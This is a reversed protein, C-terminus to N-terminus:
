AGTQAMLAYGDLEGQANKCVFVDWTIEQYIGSPLRVELKVQCSSKGAAQQLADQFTRKSIDEHRILEAFLDRDVLQEASREMWRLLPENVYTILFDPTVKLAPVQVEDLTRSFMRAADGLMKDAQRLEIRLSLLRAMLGLLEETGPAFRSRATKAVFCLAGEVQGDVLLPAAVLSNFEKERHLCRTCSLGTLDPLLVTSGQVVDQLCEEVAFEMHREVNFSNPTTYLVTSTLRNRHPEFRLVVGLDAEFMRQGLQLMRDVQETMSLGAQQTLNYLEHLHQDYVRKDSADKVWVIAEGREELPAVTADYYHAQGQEPWEFEFHSSVRVAMCEKITFMARAAADAPWFDAPMKGLFMHQAQAQDVGPLNSSVELVKGKDDVKLYLGPLTQRLCVLEQAEKSLKDGGGATAHVDSIVALVAQESPIELACLVVQAECCIGEKGQLPLNFIAKGHRAVERQAKMLTLEVSPYDSSPEGFLDKFEMQSLEEYSYHTKKALWSNLQDAKGLQKNVFSVKLVGGETAAHLASLQASREELIKMIQLHFALSRLVFLYNDDEERVAMLRVKCTELGSGLYITYERNSLKGEKKLLAFDQNILPKEDQVFLRQIKQGQLEEPSLACLSCLLDNCAIITFDEDCLAYPESNPLVLMQQARKDKKTLFPPLPPLSVAGSAMKTQTPAVPAAPVAVPPAPMVPEASSGPTSAPEVRELSVLYEAEVSGDKADRKAIPAFSIALPLTGQGHIRGPFKQAAKEFDFVYTMQAPNGERMLRRVPLSIAPRLYVNCYFKKDAKTFGFMKRCAENMVSIYGKSSLIFAPLTGQEFAQRFNDRESKLERLSRNDATVDSVFGLVIRRGLYKALVASFKAELKSGNKKIFHAAISEDGEDAGSRIAEYKEKLFVRHNETSLSLLDKGKLEELNDFGLMSVFANNAYIIKGDEIMVVGERANEVLLTNKDSAERIQKEMKTKATIDESVILLCNPTGDANFVPTKVTHMIKIGEHPSSILEQPINQEQKSEFVRKDTERVFEAQEKNLDSRYAEKGIVDKALAGFLEESKKNWLIYQGDYNKVSLSVPLQNIVTQLFNKSEILAREQEKKSTIDEVLTVVCRSDAVPTKILHLLKKEGKVTVYEEEPIDLTEGTKLIEMERGLYSAVQEPTEHRLAGNKDFDTDKMAGFLNICQKNRLLMRGNEARAYLAIPANQVIASLFSNVRHIEREQEHRKTVDEVITLVLPKPGAEMLPVKIMHIIKKNGSSDVYVEEPYEYTKGEKLIQKERQEYEVVEEGQYAHPHDTRYPSTENLIDMSQKNFFTIKADCDRTYLGLPINELIAQLLKHSRELSQARETAFTVDEFLTVLLRQAQTEAPLYAKTVAFQREVGDSDTLSLTTPEYHPKGAGLEEDLWHLSAGFGKPLVRYIIKGVAESATHGFLKAASANWFVCRANEDQVTVPGPFADLLARLFHNEQQTQEWQPAAELSLLWWSTEGLLKGGVNVSIKKGQATTLEILQKAAGDKQQLVKLQEASIGIKEVKKGVLAQASYGLLVGVASNLRSVVGQESVLLIPTPLLELFTQVEPTLQKLVAAPIPDKSFFSFINKKPM